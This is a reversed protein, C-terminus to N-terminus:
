KCLLSPPLHQLITISTKHRKSSKTEKVSWIGEAIQGIARLESGRRIWRRSFIEVVWQAM